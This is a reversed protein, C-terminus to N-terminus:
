RAVIRVSSASQAMRVYLLLYTDQSGRWILQPFGFFSLSGRGDSKWAIGRVENGGDENDDDDDDDRSEDGHFSGGFVRQGNLRFVHVEEDVTALAILDMTPCYTLTGLKCKAPLLKEAIPILEIRNLLGAPM